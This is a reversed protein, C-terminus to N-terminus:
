MLLPSNSTILKSAGAVLTTTMGDFQIFSGSTNDVFFSSYALSGNTGSCNSAIGNTGVSGNNLIYIAVPTNTGPITAINTQALPVSVGNLFFAFVDNFNSCVYENYEESAFVYQFSVTNPSPLSIL